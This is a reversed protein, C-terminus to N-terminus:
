RKMATSFRPRHVDPDNDSKITIAEVMDPANNNRNM